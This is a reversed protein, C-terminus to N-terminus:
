KESINTIVIQTRNKNYISRKHKREQIQEWYQRIKGLIGKRHRPSTLVKPKYYKHDFDQKNIYKTIYNITAENVFGKEEDNTWVFGHGWREKITERSEDTWVIGHLHINETGNHGLETVLWHRLSKGYKKRWKELFLRTGRKAIFNDREYGTLKTQKGIEAISENSFTLTVFIGNKNHRIDELLRMQWERGKKKMCEICKGCGVPVALVRKDNITPIVGGNKKNAEYKRNKILRPYLCM